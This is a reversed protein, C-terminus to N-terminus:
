HDSKEEIPLVFSRVWRYAAAQAADRKKVGAMKMAISANSYM